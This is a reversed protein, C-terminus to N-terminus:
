TSYIPQYYNHNDRNSSDHYSDVTEKVLTLFNIQEKAHNRKIM